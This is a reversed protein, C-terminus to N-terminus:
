GNIGRRVSILEAAIAVAIEEPTESGIALGIPSHVADLLEQKIGDDNRLKDYVEKIKKSSGIMGIYKASSRIVERLILYDFQHGRSVIVLYDNEQIKLDQLYDQFEQCILYDAEPFRQRNIFEERDDVITVEYDIMKGLRALPLAIHGSGFIILRPNNILPEFFVELEMGGTKIEKLVPEEIELIVGTNEENVLWDSIIGLPGDSYMPESGRVVLFKRGIFDDNKSDTITGVVAKEPKEYAKRIKHYFDKM